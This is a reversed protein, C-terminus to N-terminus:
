SMGSCGRRGIGAVASELHLREQTMGRQCHSRPINGAGFIWGTCGRVVYGGERRSSEGPM